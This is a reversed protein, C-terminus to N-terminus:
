VYIIEDKITEYYKPKVAKKSVLDVHRNLLSEIEDALDIFKIGINDNFEVLVDVDSEDNEEERAVSGFIALSKIPYKSYLTDKNKSLIRLIDNKQNM